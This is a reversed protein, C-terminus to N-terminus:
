EKRNIAPNIGPADGLAADVLVKPTSENNTDIKVETGPLSAAAKAVNLTTKELVLLVFGLITVALAILKEVVSTEYGFIQAITIFSPGSATLAAKLATILQLWNVNNM